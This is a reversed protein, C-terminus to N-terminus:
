STSRPNPWFIKPRRSGLLKRNKVRRMATLIRSSINPQTTSLHHAAKRFSGLEAVWILAELQKINLVNGIM